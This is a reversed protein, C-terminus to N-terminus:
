LRRHALAPFARRVKDTQTLDIECIVLGPGNERCALTEGWPDIIMSHGWTIRGNAHTGTQAAAFVFSQNEVARAKLLIHWHARGTDYTFAAPVSLLAAGREVLERYMEPFRLDYCISLGICAQQVTVVLLNEDTAPGAQYRASESYDEGSPLVVDFLHIKSYQALCDGSPAYVLCRTFPLEGDEVVIPLSGAIITMQYRASASALFEQVPGSGPVESHLESARRPMQAFNEPLQIIQVGAAAAEALYRDVEALNADVDAGSSM